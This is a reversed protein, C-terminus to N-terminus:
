NNGPTVPADSHRAAGMIEAARDPHDINPTDAGLGSQNLLIRDFHRARRSAFLGARASSYCGGASDMGRALPMGPASDSASVGYDPSYPLNM